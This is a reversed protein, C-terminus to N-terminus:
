NGKWKEMEFLCNLKTICCIRYPNYLGYPLVGLWYPPEFLLNYGCVISVNYKRAIKTWKVRTDLLIHLNTPSKEM